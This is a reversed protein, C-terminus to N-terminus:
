GRRRQCEQEQPQGSCHIRQRGASWWRPQTGHRTSVARASCLLHAPLHSTPSRLLRSIPILCCHMAEEWRAASSQPYVAPAAHMGAAEPTHGGAGVPTLNEAPEYMSSTSAARSRAPQLPSGFARAAALAVPPVAAPQQQQQQQQQQQPVSHVAHTAACRALSSATHELVRTWGATSGASGGSAAGAGAGAGTGSGGAGAEPSKPSSVVDAKLGLM